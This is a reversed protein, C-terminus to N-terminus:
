NIDEIWEMNDDIIDDMDDFRNVKLEFALEEVAEVCESTHKLIDQGWFHVPVWDMAILKLDAKCDRAINREIKKIWYERNQGLAQKKVEWDYGHFFEGDCFIAIKYKTIAIDPSGPLAAFNKRYRYGKHWLARRFVVEISTNKGKIRSMTRSRQEPTMIDSM